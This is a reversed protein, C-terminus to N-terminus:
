LSDLWQIYARIPEAFGGVYGQALYEGLLPKLTVQLQDAPSLESTRLFYSHGPVLSLADDSAYEIFIDILDAFARTMTADGQEEVVRRQPWLKAFAFRRRVAVDVIALSRDATNMTGLVHLNNPLELKAGFGDGFDYPLDIARQDGPEFLYIAEGLIKSLDARNIEDVHLLYDRKPDDSAARAARMLYGPEPAFNLGVGSSEHRPALGGVFNEYTTNPHFQISTGHSYVDEVLHKALRTKGTGPPGEIVVYRRSRLLSLVNSEDLDPMLHNGWATRIRQRDKEGSAVFGAHREDFSLDLFAATADRVAAANDTPAFLAYIEKGYRDFVSRYNPFRAVIADPIPTDVRAPDSKAWAVLGGNGHAQNLWACIARTKRAHGPRAIIEEDPQLGATGLGLSVLCPGDAVPFIVFSMGSYPGSDANSPHIYAAYPVGSESSMNPARVKALKSASSPYRAGAGFLAEFAATNAANWDDVIGAHDVIAILQSLAEDHQGSM